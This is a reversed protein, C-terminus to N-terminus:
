SSHEGVTRRDPPMLRSPRLVPLHLQQGVQILTSPLRNCWQLTMASIGHMRAIQFLTDGPQVTYSSTYCEKITMKPQPNNKRIPLPAISASSPRAPNMQQYRPSASHPKIHPSHISRSTTPLSEDAWIVNTLSLLTGVVTIVVICNCALVKMFLAISFKRHRRM